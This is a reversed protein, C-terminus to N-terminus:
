KNHLSAIDCSIRTADDFRNVAKIKVQSIPVIEGVKFWTYDEWPMRVRHSGLYKHYTTVKEQVFTRNRNKKLKLHITKISIFLIHFSIHFEKPPM